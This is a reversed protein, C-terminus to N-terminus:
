RRTNPTYQVIYPCCDGYDTRATVLQSIFCHTDSEPFACPRVEVRYEHLAKEVTTIQRVSIPFDSAGNQKGDRNHRTPWDVSVDVQSCGNPVEVEIAPGQSWEVVADGPDVTVLKFEFKTGIPVVLVWEWTVVDDKGRRMPAVKSSDWKGLVGGTGDGILGVRLDGPCDRKVRVTVAADVRDDPSLRPRRNARRGRRASRAHYALPTVVPKATCSPTANRGHTRRSRLGRASSVSVSWGSPQPLVCWGM